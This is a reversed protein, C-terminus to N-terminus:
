PSAPQATSGTASGVDIGAPQPTPLLPFPRMAPGDAPNRRSARRRDLLQQLRNPAPELIDPSPGTASEVGPGPMMANMSPSLSWARERGRKLIAERSANSITGAAQGAASVDAIASPATESREADPYFYSPPLPPPSEPIEPTPTPTITPTPPFIDETRVLYRTPTPSPPVPRAIQDDSLDFPRPVDKVLADPIPTQLTSFDIRLGGGLPEESGSHPAGIPTERPLSALREQEAQYWMNWEELQYRTFAEVDKRAEILEPSQERGPVALNAALWDRGRRVEAILEVPESAANLVADATGVLAQLQRDHVDLNLKRERDAIEAAAQNAAMERAHRASIERSIETLRSHFRASLDYCVQNEARRTTSRSGTWEEEVIVKDQWIPLGTDAAFAVGLLEIRFIKAKDSWTQEYRTRQFLVIADFDVKARMPAVLAPDLTGKTKWDKLGRALMSDLQDRTAIDEFDMVTVAQGCFKRLQSQFAQTIRRDIALNRSDDVQPHLVVRVPRETDLEYDYITIPQLPEEAPSDNGGIFPIKPIQPIKPLKPWEVAWIGSTSFLVWLCALGAATIRRPVGPTDRPAAHKM